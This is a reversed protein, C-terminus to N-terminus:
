ALNRERMRAVDELMPRAHLGIREPSMKLVGIRAACCPINKECKMALGFEKGCTCLKNM